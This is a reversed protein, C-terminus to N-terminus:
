DNRNNDVAEKITEEKKGKGETLWYKFARRNYIYEIVQGLVDLRKRLVELLGMVIFIALIIGGVSLIVVGIATALWILFAMM